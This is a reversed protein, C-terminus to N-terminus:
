IKEQKSTKALDIGYIELFNERLQKAEKYMRATHLLFYTNFYLHTSGHHVETVVAIRFPEKKQLRSRFSRIAAEQLMDKAIHTDKWNACKVHFTM